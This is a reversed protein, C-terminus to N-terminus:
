NEAFLFCCFILCWAVKLHGGIDGGNMMIGFFLNKFTTFTSTLITFTSIFCTYTYSCGQTLYPQDHPVTTSTKSTLYIYKYVSEFM